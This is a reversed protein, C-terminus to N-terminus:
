QKIWDDDVYINVLDYPNNFYDHEILDLEKLRIALATKSVGLSGAVTEFRAYEERAYIRNLMRIKSGLGYLQMKEVVIDPPMLIAAALVDARWEEWDGTRYRHRRRYYHVTGNSYSKPYLMKYIQHCAEHMLTFNMHGVLGDKEQLSKDLIITKGDIHQYTFEGTDEDIVGIDVEGPSTVGLVDEGSAIKRYIVTLGLLEQALLAPDVKEIPEGGHTPLNKYARIVRAAIAEIQQKTLYPM